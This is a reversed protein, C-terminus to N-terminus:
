RLNKLMLTKILLGDAILHTIVGFGLAFGFWFGFFYNVLLALGLVFSLSHTFGRHKSILMFLSVALLVVPLVVLSTELIKFYVGLLIAISSSYFLTNMTKAPKSHELDLDPLLGGIVLLGAMVLLDTFSFSFNFCLFEHFCNTLLFFAIIGLVLSIFIHDKWTKAQLM